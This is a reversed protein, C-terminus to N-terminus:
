LLGGQELAPAEPAPTFMDVQRTEREIRECAAAFYDTDIETATLHAGCPERNERQIYCGFRNIETPWGPEQRDNPTLAFVKNGIRGWPGPTHKTEM